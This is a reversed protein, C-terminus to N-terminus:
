ANFRYTLTKSLRFFYREVLTYFIYAVAIAAAVGAAFVM